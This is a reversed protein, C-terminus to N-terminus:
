DNKPKAGDKGDPIVKAPLKESSAAGRQQEFRSWSKLYTFATVLQNDGRMPEAWKSVAANINSEKALDSLDNSTIHGELDSEKRMDEDSGERRKGPVKPTSQSTRPKYAVFIDPTIGKAQISRDKPTYYRAVTLKLGSGDPLSVLTQVSGKGFTTTGM